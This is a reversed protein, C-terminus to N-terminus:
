RACDADCWVGGLEACRQEADLAFDYLRLDDVHLEGIGLLNGSTGLVLDDAGELYDVGLDPITTVEVGNVWVYIDGFNSARVLAVQSWAGGSAPFGGTGHSGLMPDEAGYVFGTWDPISSGGLLQLGNRANRCDLISTNPAPSMTERFWFVLTMASVNGLPVSTGTLLVNGIPEPIVVAQGLVGAGFSANQVSGDFLGGGLTGMNRADGDFPYWLLPTTAPERAQCEESGGGPGSSAAAGDGDDVGGSSEALELPTRTGCAALALALVM